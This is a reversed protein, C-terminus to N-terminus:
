RFIYEAAAKDDLKIPDSFFKYYIGSLLVVKVILLILIEKWYNSIKKKTKNTTSVKEVTSIKDCHAM